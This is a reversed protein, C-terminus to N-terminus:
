HGYGRGLIYDQLNDIMVKQDTIVSKVVDGISIVGVPEGNQVVPLHRIHQLSMLQMCEQITTDPKVVIVQRTMLEEVPSDVNCMGQEATQRVIDRESLIGVIAGNQMVLLAGVNHEALVRMAELVSAGPPVSYIANGKIRLLDQVTVM